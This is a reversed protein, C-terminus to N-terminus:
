FFHPPAYPSSAPFEVLRVDFSFDHVEAVFVKKEDGESINSETMKVADKKKLLGNQYM